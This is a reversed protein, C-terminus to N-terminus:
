NTIIKRGTYESLKYSIRSTDKYIYIRYKKNDENLIM